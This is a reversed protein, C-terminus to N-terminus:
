SGSTRKISTPFTGDKEKWCLFRCETAPISTLFHAEEILEGIKQVDLKEEALGASSISLVLILITLFVCSFRKM